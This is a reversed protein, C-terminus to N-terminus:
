QNISGAPETRLVNLTTALMRVVSECTIATSSSDNSDDPFLVVASEGDGGGDQDGCRMGLRRAPTGIQALEM